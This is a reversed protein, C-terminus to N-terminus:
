SVAVTARPHIANIWLSEAAAGLRGVIMRRVRNSGIGLVLGDPAHRAYEDIKGLVPLGLHVMGTSHDNDDLFGLVKIGSLLLIDAVVKGHGGAGLVLVGSM